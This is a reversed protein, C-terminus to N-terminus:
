TYLHRNRKAGLGITCRMKMEHFLLSKVDDPSILDVHLEDKAKRERREDEGLTQAGGRGFRNTTYRMTVM